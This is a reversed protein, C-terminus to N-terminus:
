LHQLEMQLQMMEEKTAGAKKAESLRKMLDRKQEEIEDKDETLSKTHLTSFHRWLFFVISVAGPM